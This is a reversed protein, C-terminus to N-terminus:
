DFIEIRFTLHSTSINHRPFIYETLHKTKFPEKSISNALWKGESIFQDRPYLFFLAQKIKGPKMEFSLKGLTAGGCYNYSYGLEM